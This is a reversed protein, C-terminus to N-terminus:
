KLYFPDEPFKKGRTKLQGYLGENWEATSASNQNWDMVYLRHKIRWEEGRKELNDIYRGGVVMDTHGGEGPIYHYASVYTEAKANNKDLLDICVNGIFHMTQDMGALAPILYDAFEWANGNFTGHDDTADSWYVSKLTEIDCRDVGRSYRVMLNYIDQKDIVEQLKKDSISM